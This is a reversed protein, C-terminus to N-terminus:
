KKQNIPSIRLIHARLLAIDTSNARGDGNIDAAKLIYKCEIPNIRLIHARLFAIDTSNARGDGNIDGFIVLTYEETKKGDVYIEVSTGTGVHSKDDLKKGSSNIFKYEVDSTNFGKKMDSVTTLPDIGSIIEDDNFVYGGRSIRPYERTVDIRYIRKTGDAATVTVSFKNVGYNLVKEGPGSVTALPSRASAQITIKETGESVKLTYPGNNSERFEPLIQYGKVSLSSLRNDTSEERPERTINIKYYRTEGSVPICSVTIINDGEKLYIEGTGTIRANKNPSSASIEVKEEEFPVSLTYPGSFFADFERPFSYGKVSLTDLTNTDDPRPAKLEPMEEYVPIKFVLDSDYMGLANYANRVSYSEHLPAEVNQMYQHSGPNIPNFRQYYLTDQGANIYNNGIFRAGGTIAKQETDWPFLYEKYREPTFPRPKGNPYNGLAFELGNRILIDPDTISGATGINYFNYLGWYKGDWKDYKGTAIRSLPNGLELRSRSALHYPSVGSKQAAEFFMDAKGSLGSGSVIREVGELKHIEPQFTLQEFQFIRRESLFNRPDVYYEIAATSARVFSSGDVVTPDKVYEDPRPNSPPSWILSVNGADQRSIVYDWSHGTEHPIFVWQPYQSHMKLLSNKYSDPFNELHSRFRDETEKDIRHINYTYKASKTDSSSGPTFVIEIKNNGEKLGLNKYPAQKKAGNLFVEVRGSKESRVIDSISIETADYPLHVNYTKKGPDFDEIVSKPSSIELSSIGVPQLDVLSHFMYGEYVRSSTTYRVRYWTDTDFEDPYLGKEWGLVEVTHGSLVLILPTNDRTTPIERLNCNANAKGMVANDMYVPFEWLPEDAESVKGDYISLTHLGRPIKTTDIKVNFIYKGGSMSMKSKELSFLINYEGNLYGKLTDSLFKEPAIEGSLVVEGRWAYYSSKETESLYGALDVDTSYVPLVTASAPKKVTHSAGTVALMASLFFVFVALKIKRLKEFRLLSNRIVSLGKVTNYTYVPDKSNGIIRIGTNKKQGDSKKM